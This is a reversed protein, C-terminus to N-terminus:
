RGRLLELLDLEELALELCDHLALGAMLGGRARRELFSFSIRSAMSM